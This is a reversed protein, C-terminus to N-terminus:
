NMKAYDIREGKATLRAVLNQDALSVIISECSGGVFCVHFWEQCLTADIKMRLIGDREIQQEIKNM